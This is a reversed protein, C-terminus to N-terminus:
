GLRPLVTESRRTEGGPICFDCARRGTWSAGYGGRLSFMKPGKDNFSGGPLRVEPFFTWVRLHCTSGCGLLSHLLSDPLDIVTRFEGGQPHWYRCYVKSQDPKEPLEQWDNYTVIKEPSLSLLSSLAATLEERTLRREALIDGGLRDADM